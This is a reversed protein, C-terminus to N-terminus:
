RAPASEPCPAIRDLGCVSVGLGGVVLLGPETLVTAPRERADALVERLFAPDHHWRHAVEGGQLTLTLLGSDEVALQDVRHKADAGRWLHRAQTPHIAHGTGFSPCIGRAPVAPVM